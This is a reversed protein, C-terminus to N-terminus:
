RITIKKAVITRSGDEYFIEAKMEGSQEPTYYQDDGVEIVKGDMTWVIEEADYANFLRLPFRSGAPYTGDSNKNVNYLYIFPYHRERPSKTMFNCPVETSKVDGAKQYIVCRYSTRPELDDITYAFLLGDSDYPEVKVEVAEGGSSKEWRIYMDGSLGFDQKKWSVIAADQFVESSIGYPAPPTGEYESVTLIINVGDREIGTIALSPETSNWFIFAPDTEPTFATCSVSGTTYPYFVQAVDRSTPYAEILDACQHLPNCNVENIRWRTEATIARGYSESYEAQNRSKDVHYILLGSGGIHSDWGEEARCEFLYYEGDVGSGVKYYQGGSGLPELVHTGPTLEVAEGIGATERDIANYNPPTNGENNQNGSDMLGTSGWLADSMGGSEEYDTDYLDMLGLTHSYEHCFTGIGTLVYGSYGTRHLEATCAYRNLKVGDLTVEIGAGDILYWAHSWIHNDGAYEAEDGGAFFVFVNDVEGNGDDDFQSFDVTGDALECAEKVMEAARIDSGDKGNAGYYAYGKSLTVIDSVEFTFTCQGGFQDNFYDMASGTAGNDSYGEENLLREFASKTHGQSFRLDQFQALIVIGHKQVVQGSTKTSIGRAARIRALVSEEEAEACSMRKDAALRMLTSYPVTRSRAAVDAPVDQGVKCDTLVKAGSEDYYAYRYWGLSDQGIVSGDATTLVKMFEDGRLRAMFSSGDPQYLLADGKKAPAAVCVAQLLCAAAAAVTGLVKASHKM